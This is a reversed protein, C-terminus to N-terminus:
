PQPPIKARILLDKLSKTGGALPLILTPMIESFKRCPESQRHDFLLEEYPDRQPETCRSQLHHRVSSHGQIDKTQIEFRKKHHSNVLEQPYGRGLLHYSRAITSCSTMAKQAINKFLLRTPNSFVLLCVYM